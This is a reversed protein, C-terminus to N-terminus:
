TESESLTFSRQIAEVADALADLETNESGHLLELERIVATLQQHFSPSSHYPELQKMAASIISPSVPSVSNYLASASSAVPVGGGQEMVSLQFSADNIEQIWEFAEREYATKSAVAFSRGPQWTGSWGDQSEPLVHVHLGAHGNMRQLASLPVVALLAEGDVIQELVQEHSESVLRVPLSDGSILQQEQLDALLEADAEADVEVASRVQRLIPVGIAALMAPDQKTLLIWEGGEPQEVRERREVLVSAWEGYTAPTDRENSGVVIDSRYVLVYPDIDMPIGWSSGNWQVQADVATSVPEPRDDIITQNETRVLYGRAAFEILATNQLLLVDPVLGTRARERLEISATSPELRELTYVHQPRTDAYAQHKKKLVEFEEEHMAAAIHLEANRVEVPPGSLSTVEGSVKDDMPMEYEVGKFFVGSVTILMVGLLLMFSVSKGKNM